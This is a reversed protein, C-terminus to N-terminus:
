GQPFFQQLMGLYIEHSEPTRTLVEEIDANNLIEDILSDVPHEVNGDPDQEGEFDQAVQSPDDLLHERDHRFDDERDLANKYPEQKKTMDERSVANTPHYYHYFIAASSEQTKTLGSLEPALVGTDENSLEEAASFNGAVKKLEPQVNWNTEPGVRDQGLGLKSPLMELPEPIGNMNPDLTQYYHADKKGSVIVREVPYWFREHGDAELTVCGHHYGLVRVETGERILTIDRFPAKKMYCPVAKSLQTHNKTLGVKALAPLHYELAWARGLKGSFANSLSSKEAERGQWQYHLEDINEQYGLIQVPAALFDCGETLAGALATGLSIPASEGIMVDEIPYSGSLKLHSQIRLKCPQLSQWYGQRQVLKAHFVMGAETLKAIGAVLFPGLRALHYM